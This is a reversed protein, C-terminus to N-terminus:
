EYAFEERLKDEIEEREVDPTCLWIILALEEIEAGNDALEFFKDYQAGTGGNFWGERNCLAYLECIDFGIVMNGM